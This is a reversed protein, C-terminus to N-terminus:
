SSNRERRIERDADDIAQLLSGFQTDEVPWARNFAPGLQTVEQGTLLAVAYIRDDDVAASRSVHM